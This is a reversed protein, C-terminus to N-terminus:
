RTEKISTPGNLNDIEEQTLQSLKQSESFQDM